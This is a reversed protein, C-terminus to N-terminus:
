YEKMIKIILEISQQMENLSLYEYNGHFNYGGTGLNPCPLGQNTLNAGDTGGRIKAYTPNMGLDKMCEYVFEYVKPTKKLNDQMNYYSDSIEVEVLDNKGYKINLSNAIDKITQKRHEVLTQDFDRIILEIKSQECQAEINCVHIFGKDEKSYYPTDEKDLESIFETALLSANLMRKYAYGPHISCGKIKVVAKSANFNGIELEGVDSGDITYAVLAGLRKVDFHKTGLGIEEDPTFAICIENHEVSPHDKFYSLVSMIITIGAKDDAGLLTTGDSVILDHTVHNLLSPFMLPSMEMTPNLKIIGGDYNNIVRAKIDSGKADCSTDMHAILGISNSLSGPLKAYVVGFESLYIDKLGLAELEALMKNAFTLQSSTSPVSSSNPDSTTDISIYNLFRNILADKNEM